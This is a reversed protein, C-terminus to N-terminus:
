ATEVAAPEVIFDFNAQQYPALNVTKILGKLTNFPVDIAFNNALWSPIKGGPSVHNLYTVKVKGHHKGNEFLPSFIWEGNVAAVRECGKKAPRLHNQASFRINVDLSEPDQSIISEVVSDRDKVPWPAPAISHTYYAEGTDKFLESTKVGDMWKSFNRADKQQAVLGALTSVAVAEIKFALFDSGAVETTYAQVDKDNKQLKWNDGFSTHKAM